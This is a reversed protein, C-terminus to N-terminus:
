RKLSSLVVNVQVDLPLAADVAIAHESPDPQELTQLQSVLLTAPMFHGGRHALRSELLTRGAKLYVLVLDPASARFRDRYSRKLASCTLICSHHRAENESLRECIACLWPERDNDDLPQGSHMKEINRRPHLDDGEIFPTHLAKALAM